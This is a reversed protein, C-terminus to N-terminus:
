EILECVCAEPDLVRVSSQIAYTMLTSMWKDGWIKIDRGNGVKWVLGENLLFKANWISRWVYSPRRSLPSDLFTGNPHYKEQLIRAALSELNQILRWGQKSLLATNFCELDQFGLGGVKKARGMKEWCIWAVKNTNEKHGWWFMTMMSNIENCLTKPLQFVSMTYVPIAQVVAKLLVEKGAHSLFKEKWGQMKDRIRGKIGTLSLVKSRGMLAPLGLYKEYRHTSIIGVVTLIHNKIKPKTNRSFFMSTKSMNLKQRSAKEYDDLVKQIYYWEVIGAKCFLLSDDVFFLHSLRIGAQTLPLRTIGGMREMKNIWTSLGEVCLIFFYPSLPGGQRLGRSPTIKGYPRGNILISYM